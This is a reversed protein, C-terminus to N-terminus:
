VGVVSCFIEFTIMCVKLLRKLAPRLSAGRELMLDRSLEGVFAARWTRWDADLGQPFSGNQMYMYILAYAISHECVSPCSHM